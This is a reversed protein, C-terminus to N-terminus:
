QTFESNKCVNVFRLVTHVIKMTKKGEYNGIILLFRM